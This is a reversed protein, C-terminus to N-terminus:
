TVGFFDREYNEPQRCSVLALQKRLGRDEACLTGTEGEDSLLHAFVHVSSLCVFQDRTSSHLSVRLSIFTVISASQEGRPHMFLGALSLGGQIQHM